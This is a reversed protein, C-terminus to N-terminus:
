NVPKEVKGTQSCSPCLEARMSQCRLNQSTSEFRSCSVEEESLLEERLLERHDEARHM